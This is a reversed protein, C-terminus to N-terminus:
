LHSLVDSGAGCACTRTVRRFHPVDGATNRSLSLPAQASLKAGPFPVCTPPIPLYSPPFPSPFLYSAM